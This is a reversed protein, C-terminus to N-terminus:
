EQEFVGKDKLAQILAQSVRINNAKWEMHANPGVRDAVALAAGCPIGAKQCAAFVGTLELHEAPASSALAQAGEFTKTIVMPVAVPHAPFGMPEKAVLTAPWRVREVTPRYARGEVEELSVSLAETAEILDGVALREDYAGCTGVFLVRSPKLTALLESTTVAATV